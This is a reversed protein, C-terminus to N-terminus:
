TKWMAKQHDDSVGIIFHIMKSERNVTAHLNGNENTYKKNQM